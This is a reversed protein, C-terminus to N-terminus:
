KAFAEMVDCGGAFRNLRARVESSVSASRLESFM